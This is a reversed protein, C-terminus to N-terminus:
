FVGGPLIHLCGGPTDAPYPICYRRRSRRSRRDGGTNAGTVTQRNVGRWRRRRAALRARARRARRGGQM